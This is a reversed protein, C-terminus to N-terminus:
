DEQQPPIKPTQLSMVSDGDDDVEASVNHESIIDDLATMESPTGFIRM